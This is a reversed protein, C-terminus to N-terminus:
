VPKKGGSNSTATSSGLSPRMPASRPLPASSTTSTPVPPPTVSINLPGSPPVQPGFERCKLVVEAAQTKGGYLTQSLVHKNGDGDQVVMVNTM